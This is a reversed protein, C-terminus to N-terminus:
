KEGQWLTLVEGTKKDLLVDLGNDLADKIFDDPEFGLSKIQNISDIRVLRKAQNINLM